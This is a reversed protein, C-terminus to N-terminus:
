PSDCTALTSDPSFCANFGDETLNPASVNSSQGSPDEMILSDGTSLNASAANAMSQTFTETGFDALPLIGSRSSPAEEIWEASLNPSKYTVHKHWSKHTTENTMSLTWKQKGTCTGACSLSATIVNGPKVKLNTRISAKPLMEYWAWYETKTATLAAHATGLQILTEDVVDCESDECFGGIGVWSASLAEVGEYSVAPVTWTAQASTYLNGTEFEPLAYGSWIQNVLAGDITRLPDGNEDRYVKIPAHKVGLRSQGAIAPSSAGAIAVTLACILFSRM